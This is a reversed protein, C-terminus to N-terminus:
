IQLMKQSFSNQMQFSIVEEKTTIKLLTKRSKKKVVVVFLNVVGRGVVAVVVPSDVSHVDVEGIALVVGAVM